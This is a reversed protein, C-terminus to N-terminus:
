YLAPEWRVICGVPVEDASALRGCFTGDTEYAIPVLPKDPKPPVPLLSLGKIRRSRNMSIIKARENALRNYETLTQM